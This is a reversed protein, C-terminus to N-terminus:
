RILEEYEPACVVVGGNRLHGIVAGYEMEITEIDTWSEVTEKISPFVSCPSYEETCINVLVTGDKTVGFCIDYGHSYVLQTIDKWALMPKLPEEYYDSMASFVITGDSCLGIIKGDDGYSQVINDWDEAEYSAGPMLGWVAVTGDEKVCISAYGNTYIFSGREVIFDDDVSIEGYSCEECQEWGPGGFCKDCKKVNYNGGSMVTGDHCIAVITEGPMGRGTKIERINEWQSISEFNIYMSTSPFDVDTYGAILVKGDARLGFLNSSTVTISEIDNWDKTDSVYDVDYKMLDSFGMNVTGTESLGALFSECCEIDVINEWNNIEDIDEQSFSRELGSTIVTGDSKLAAYWSNARCFDVYESSPETLSSWQGNKGSRFKEKGSQLEAFASTEVLSFVCGVVLFIGLLKAALNM